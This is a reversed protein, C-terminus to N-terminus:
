ILFFSVKSLQPSHVWCEKKNPNQYLDNKESPVSNYFNVDYDEVNLLSVKVINLYPKMFRSVLVSGKIECKEFSINIIKEPFAIM